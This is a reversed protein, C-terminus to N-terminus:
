IDLGRKTLYHYEMRCCPCMEKKLNEYTTMLQLIICNQCFSHGCMMKTSCDDYKCIPCTTQVEPDNEKLKEVFPITKILSDIKNQSNEETNILEFLMEYVIRNKWNFIQDEYINLEITPIRSQILLACQTYNRVVATEMLSEIYKNRDYIQISNIHHPFLFDFLLRFGTYLGEKIIKLSCEMISKIDVLTKIEEWFSHVLDIRKFHAFISYISLLTISDDKYQHSYSILRNIEDIGLKSPNDSGYLICHLNDIRKNFLKRALCCQTHEITNMSYDCFQCINTIRFDRARYKKVRQSMKSNLQHRNTKICNECMCPKILVTGRKELVESKTTRLYYIMNNSVVVSCFSLDVANMLNSYNSYNGINVLQLKIQIGGNLKILYETLGKIELNAYSMKKITPITRHFYVMPRTKLFSIIKNYDKDFCYVDFDRSDWSKNTLEIPPLVVDHLVSSGGWCADPFTALLNRIYENIRSHDLLPESELFNPFLSSNPSSENIKPQIETM